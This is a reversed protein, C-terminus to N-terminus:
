STKQHRYFKGVAQDKEPKDKIEVWIIAGLVLAVVLGMVNDLVNLQMSTLSLLFGEQTEYETFGFDAILHSLWGLTFAGFYYLKDFIVDPINKPHHRWYDYVALLLAAIFALFSAILWLNISHIFGRHEIFEFFVGPADFDPLTAAFGGVILTKYRGKKDLYVFLLSCILGIAFHSSFGVM